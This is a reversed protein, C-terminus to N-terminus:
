ALFVTNAPYRRFFLIRQDEMVKYPRNPYLYRDSPDNLIKGFVQLSDSNFILYKSEIDTDKKPPFDSAENKCSFKSLLAISIISLFIKRVFANFFVATKM